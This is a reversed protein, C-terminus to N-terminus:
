PAREGNAERLRRIDADLVPRMAPEILRASPGGPAAAVIASADVFVNIGGYAGRVPRGQRLYVVELRAGCTELNDVRDLPVFGAHGQEVWCVGADSPPAKPGKHLLLLGALGIVCGILLRRWMRM